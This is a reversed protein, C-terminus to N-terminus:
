GCVWGEDGGYTGDYGDFGAVVGVEADFGEAGYGVRSGEVGANRSDPGEIESAREDDGTGAGPM